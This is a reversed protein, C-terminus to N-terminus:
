RRLFTTQKNTKNTMNLDGLGCRRKDYEQYQQFVRLILLLADVQNQLTKVTSFNYFIASIKLFFIM